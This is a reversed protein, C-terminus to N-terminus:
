MDIDILLDAEEKGLLYAPQTMESSSKKVFRIRAETQVILSAQVFDSLDIPLRIDSFKTKIDDHTVEQEKKIYNVLPRAIIELRDFLYNLMDNLVFALTEKDKDPNHIVNTYIANFFEPNFELM